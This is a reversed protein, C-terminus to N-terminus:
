NARFQSGGAVNWIVDGLRFHERYAWIKADYNEASSVPAKLYPVDFPKHYRQYGSNAMARVVNIRPDSEPLVGVDVAFLDISAPLVESLCSYLTGSGVSVWLRDCWDSIRATVLAADLDECLAVRYGLANLGLPLETYGQEKTLKNGIEEDGDLYRDGGLLLIRAGYDRALRTQPSITPVGNNVYVERTWIACHIGLEQCAIALAVQAYGHPPSRYLLKNRRYQQLFKLLGRSKTGGPLLDDRVVCVDGVSQLSLPAHGPLWRTSKLPKEKTAPM